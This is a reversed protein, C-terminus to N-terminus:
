NLITGVTNEIFILQSCNDQVLVTVCTNCLEDDHMVLSRTGGQM